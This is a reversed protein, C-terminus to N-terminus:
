KEIEQDEKFKPLKDKLEQDTIPVGVLEVIARTRAGSFFSLGKNNLIKELKLFAMRKSTARSYLKMRDEEMGEICVTYVCDMVQGSADQVQTDLKANILNNVTVDLVKALSEIEDLGIRYKVNEINGLRSLKIKSKEALEKQTLGLEERKKVINIAIDCYFDYGIRETITDTYFKV